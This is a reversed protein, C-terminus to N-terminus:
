RHQETASAGAHPAPANGESPGIEDAVIRAQSGLLHYQTFTVDNLETQVMVASNQAAQGAGAVPARSYAVGHVPCTYTRDGIPVPAYEVLMAAGMTEYPPAMDAVRSLRLISGTAPEIVIEGHYGPHLQEVKPGNPIEVIFNSQDAPVSYHFVAVPESEGQEWHSWAVQSRGADHLVMGLMPGFEGYTTLGAPPAEQTSLKNAKDQVESGDRYTVTVSYAATIRLPKVESRGLSFSLTQLPHGPLDQADTAVKEVSPADEFHTTERKADFNPLRTMTTRVYEVALDFMKTQTDGDPAPDRVVDDVPVKLFAASDALRTLQERSKSGNFSKEWQALRVPSVRETLEVESLQQAVHGDAKSHDAALLQELEAVSLSKAAMASWATGALLLLTAWKVM